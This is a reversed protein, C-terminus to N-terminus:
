NINLINKRKIIFNPEKLIDCYDNTCIKCPNYEEFSCDEDENNKEIKNIEKNEQINLCKEYLNNLGETYNETWLKFDFFEKFNFNKPPSLLFNLFNANKTILFEFANGSEQKKNTVLEIKAKEEFFLYEEPSGKLNGTFINIAVLTHYFREHKMIISLRMKYLYNPDNINDNKLAKDFLNLENYCTIKTLTNTIANYDTKFCIKLAYRQRISEFEEKLDKLTIMTLMSCQSDGKAYYNARAMNKGISSNLQILLYFLYSDNKLNNIIEYNHKEVQSYINDEKFDIIKILNSNALQKLKMEKINKLYDDKLYNKLIVAVDFILIAKYYEDVQAKELYNQFAEFLIIIYTFYDLIKPNNKFALIIIIYSCYLILDKAKKTLTKKKLRMFLKYNNLLQEKNPFDYFENTILKRYIIKFFEYNGTKYLRKLETIHDKSSICLNYLQNLLSFDVIKENLSNLTFRYLGIINLEYDLYITYHYPNNFNSYKIIDYKGLNLNPFSRHTKINIFVFRKQSSNEEFKEQSKLLICKNENIFDLVPEFESNDLNDFTNKRIIIEFSIAGINYYLSYIVNEKNYYLPIMYIYYKDNGQLDKFKLNINYYQYFCCSDYLEKKFIINYISTKSNIKTTSLIIEKSNNNLISNNDIIEVDTVYYDYNNPALDYLLDLFLIKITVFAKNLNFECFSNKEYTENSKEGKIIEM